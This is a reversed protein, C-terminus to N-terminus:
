HEDASIITIPSQIVPATLTNNPLLEQVLRALWESAPEQWHKPTTATCSLVAPASEM